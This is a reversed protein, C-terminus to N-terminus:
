FFILSANTPNNRKGLVCENRGSGSTGDAEQVVREGDTEVATNPEVVCALERLM